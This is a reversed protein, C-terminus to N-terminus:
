VTLLLRHAQRSKFRAGALHLDSASISPSVKKTLHVHHMTDFSMAVTLLVHGRGRWAPVYPYVLILGNM